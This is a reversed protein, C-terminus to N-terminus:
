ASMEEGIEMSASNVIASQFSGLYEDTPSHTVIIHNM